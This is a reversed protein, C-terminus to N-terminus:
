LLIAMPVALTLDYKDCCWGNIATGSVGTCMSSLTIKSISLIFAIKLFIKYM